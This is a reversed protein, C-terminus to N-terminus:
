RPALLADESPALLAPVGRLELTYDEFGVDSPRSLEIRWAAGPSPQDLDVYIMQAATLNDREEVLEGSPDYLAVRVAEGSGEGAVVVGFEETGEPVHFFVNGTTEYFDVPADETLLNVPHTSKLIHMQNGEPAVLVRYVGTEPATFTIEREEQFPVEGAEIEDGSPAVFTVPMVDGTLRVVQEYAITMTVEDGAEAYVVPTIERRLNFGEWSFADAPADPNVPALDVDDLSISPVRPVEHIPMWSRVLDETLTMPTREGNRELVINGTIDRVNIGLEHIQRTMPTRDMDDHILVDEFHVGGVDRVTDPRAIFTIPSVHPRDVAADIISCNELRVDAGDLPKDRILVGNFQGGIFECDVFELWGGVADEDANGTTIHMSAGRDNVSRCNEIRISVDDSHARLKPIYFVYGGGMNNETLCNRMVVNILKEPSSNPEYDIGAQPATGATNSMVTDEILLNEATIVSIGQRYNRDCVVDKIHVNLNTEGELGRGVYIGDGGSETLLLGYININSSGRMNIVHRWEAKVYQEPDDYDDRRMRMTAGYGSLTVNEVGILNIMADKPEVFEGRKALIECGEEFVIEQDSVLFIKGVIWPSGMDEVILRSVGSNIASQLCETADEPDFGWWSAKAEDIEGAEVQAVAAPNAQAFLPAASAIVTLSLVFLIIRVSM